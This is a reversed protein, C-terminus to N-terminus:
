LWLAPCQTLDSDSSIFYDSQRRNQVYGAYGMGGHVFVDPYYRGFDELYMKMGLGMQRLNSKCKTSFAGAKAKSLAPLLLATLIAIIAIVVLLEVLTFGRRNADFFGSRSLRVSRDTFKKNSRKDDYIRRGSRCFIFQVRGKSM